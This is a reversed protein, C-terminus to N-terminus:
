PKNAGLKEARKLRIGGWALKRLDQAVRDGLELTEGLLEIQGKLLEEAEEVSAPRPGDPSVDEMLAKIQTYFRAVDLASQPPLLGIASANSQYITMYDYTIKVVLRDPRQYQRVWDLLLQAKKLYQRRRAIACIAAIEGAFAGAIARRTRRDDWWRMVLQVSISGCIGVAGGALVPILDVM